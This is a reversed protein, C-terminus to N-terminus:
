GLNAYPETQLVSGVVTDADLSGSAFRPGKPLREDRLSSNHVEAHAHSVTAAPQAVGQVPRRQGGLEPEIRLRVREFGYGGPVPVFESERSSEEGQLGREDADMRPLGKERPDGARATKAHQPPETNETGETTFLNQNPQLGPEIRLRVREFGYGGPVPVFEVEERSVEGQLGREDADMRPLNQNESTWIDLHGSTGIDRHGSRGIEETGGHRRPPHQEESFAEEEDVTERVMEEDKAQGFTTQGVNTLALQMSYLLLGAKKTSITDEILAKQIRMLGVQIANADEAAPLMLMLTRAEAMQKHAFCYIHQKMQPSRCSTGDQRVWRCRPAMDALKLRQKLKQYVKDEKAEGETIQRKFGPNKELLQTLEEYTKALKLALVEARQRIGEQEELEQRQHDEHENTTLPKGNVTGCPMARMKKGSEVSSEAAPFASKGIKPCVEVIM